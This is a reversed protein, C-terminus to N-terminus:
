SAKYAGNIAAFTCFYKFCVAKEVSLANYLNIIQSFIYKKRQPYVFIAYSQM